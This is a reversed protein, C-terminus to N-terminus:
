LGCLSAYPCSECRKRETTPLFPNNTDFIENIVTMLQEDYEKRFTEVDGIEEPGFKLIPDYTDDATKQIYLLAPSVPMGRGNLGKDHRVILSYLIAQLYYSPHKNSIIIRSFVEEINDLPKEDPRGTKYDIVRLRRGNETEICDLRDITGGIRLPRPCDPDGITVKDFVKIELGLITFPALCIDLDVLRKLYQIIVARNILQLGNYEPTYGKSKVGFLEEKFAQDVVMEFIESHKRAEVLPKKEIRIPEQLQTSEEKDGGLSNNNSFRLYFLQAARHFINGFIRNDIECEDDEETEQLGKVYRYYFIIPCRLYTNIATPSLSELTDFLAKTEEDKMVPKAQTTLPRMGATLTRLAIDHKGEVMLQLMFQSMGKTHGDETAQNYTITIDKARQILRHFYYAYIAVKHDVTTLDYAKRISYPIFSSDSVGKPLNGENCSLILVHDFDLNRTELVGMIQVGEAPEGHFPITTAQALQTILRDFTVTDIVLDGNALLERLRNLMTYSRFLSEQYLPNKEKRSNVGIMKLVNILYDALKLNYTANDATGSELDSFLLSMGEDVSLSSRTPYYQKNKQLKYLVKGNEQTLYHIYPHRLVKSVEHLRYKDSHPVLSAVQLHILMRILSYFPTASLPYGTTINVKDVQPPLCHIVTTLLSEDALIVATRKRAKYREQELLWRSVYRAQINETTASIYTIDKQKELNCYITDDHIDLENPFVKLYQQIFHGAEHDELYYHDFDWYFRAKGTKMLRECLMREVTPMMNLGVFLYTDYKFDIDENNVVKRYLAGEYALGQSELEDNFQVYIDHCHNWFTLFRKKLESNDDSFNGFFKHLLAKQEETLYSIDDLEHIDKLNAFVKSADAMNKDIDDFDSILLQGWGYFRDLTEASGTCQTYVRHLVSTLKIPDGVQLSSHNRFLDSITIYTPSWLPRDSLRALQENLFLSARKNPFVVAIRSLNTGYKAIIDHAVIELFSKM